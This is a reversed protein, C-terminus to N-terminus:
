GASPKEASLATAGFRPQIRRATYGLVGLDAQQEQTQHVSYLAIFAALQLASPGYKGTACTM